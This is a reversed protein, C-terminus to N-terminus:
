HLEIAQFAKANRELISRVEKYSLSKSYRPPVWFFSSSSDLYNFEATLGQAKIDRHYNELMQKVSAKVIEQDFDEGTSQHCATVILACFFLLWRSCM